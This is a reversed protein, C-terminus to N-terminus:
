PLAKGGLLGFVAGCGIKFTTSCTEILGKVQDSPQPYLTALVVAVALSLVTLGVVTILVFKFLPGAVIKKTM